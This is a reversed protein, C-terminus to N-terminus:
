AANPHALPISYYFGKITVPVSPRSATMMPPPWLPKTQAQTLPVKFRVWRPAPDAVQFQGM